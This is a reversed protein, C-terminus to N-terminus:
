MQKFSQVELEEKPILNVDEYSLKHSDNLYKEVYPIISNDLSNTEELIVDGDKFSIVIDYPMMKSVEEIKKSLLKLANIQNTNIGKNNKPFFILVRYNNPSNTYRIEIVENILTKYEPTLEILDSDFYDIGTDLVDPLNFIDRIIALKQEEHSALGIYREGTNRDIGYNNMRTVM